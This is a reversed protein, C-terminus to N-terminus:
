SVCNRYTIPKWPKINIKKLRGSEPTDDYFRTNEKSPHTHLYPPPPPTAHKQLFPHSICREASHITQVTKTLPHQKNDTIQLRQHHRNLLKKLFSTMTTLKM